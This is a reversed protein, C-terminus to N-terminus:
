RNMCEFRRHIAVWGDGRPHKWLSRLHSLTERWSSTSFRLEQSGNILLLAQGANRRCGLAYESYTTHSSSYHDEHFRWDEYTRKGLLLALSQFGPQAGFVGEDQASGLYQKPTRM